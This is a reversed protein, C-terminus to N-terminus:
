RQLGKWVFNGRLATTDAQAYEGTWPFRGAAKLKLSLAGVEAPNTSDIEEDPDYWVMFCPACIPRDGHIGPGRLFETGGCASCKAPAEDAPNEDSM